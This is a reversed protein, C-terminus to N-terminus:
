ASAFGPEEARTELAANFADHSRQNAHGMLARFVPFLAGHVDEAHTVLVTADPQEDIVFERDGAFLWDARM